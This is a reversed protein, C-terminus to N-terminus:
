IEMKPMNAFHHLVNNIIFILKKSIGKQLLDRQKKQDNALAFDELLSESPTRQVSQCRVSNM